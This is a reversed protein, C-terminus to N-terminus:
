LGSPPAHVDKRFGQETGLTTVGTGNQEGVSGACHLDGNPLFATCTNATRRRWITVTSRTRGTSRHTPSGTLSNRYHLVAAACLRPLSHRRTSAARMNPLSSVTFGTSQEGGSTLVRDHGCFVHPPLTHRWQHPRHFTLRHSVAGSCCGSPVRCCCSREVGCPTTRKVVGSLVCQSLVDDGTGIACSGHSFNTPAPSRSLVPIAM